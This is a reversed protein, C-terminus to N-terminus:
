PTEKSQQTVRRAVEAITGAGLFLLVDGAHVIPELAAPIDRLDPVYAVHNRQATVRRYLTEGSVDGPMEGASYIDTLILREPQRLVEVFEDLLHATRTYRHPQFVTIVPAGLRAAMALVAAIERPHHAYDSIVTAGRFTGLVQFRRHAGHFAACASQIAPIEAGATRAAAIAALANGVNHRGPAGLTVPYAARGREVVSFASSWPQLTLDRATFDAPHDLACTVVRAATGLSQVVSLLRADDANCIIAGDPRTQSLHQRFAAAIDDISRYYDLHDADINLAVAIEPTFRLFSGDSEDTEIVMWPGAGARYYASFEPVYGGIVATPDFGAAAFIVATLSSTTTKGHTGAITVGRSANLLAALVEARHMCRLGSARARVYEPNDRAIASSYVFIQAGAVQAAAHGVDCRIGATRLAALTDQEVRDSGSVLMGRRALLHALPNMGAGGIGCFFFKTGHAFAAPTTM